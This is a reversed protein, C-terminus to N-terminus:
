WSLEYTGCVQCSSLKNYSYLTSKQLFKNPHSGQVAWLFSWKNYGQALLVAFKAWLWEPLTELQSGWGYGFSDLFVGRKAFPASNANSRPSTLYAM